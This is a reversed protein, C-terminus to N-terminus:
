QQMQIQDEYEIRMSGSFSVVGTIPTEELFIAWIAGKTITQIPTAPASSNNYFTLLGRQSVDRDLLVMKSTGGMAIAYPPPGANVSFGDMNWFEDVLVKFRGRNDMNFASTSRITGSADTFVDTLNPATGNTQEDQVVVLRLIEGPSSSNASPRLCGAIYLHTLHVVNGIRSTETFGEVIPNLLTMPGTVAGVVGNVIPFSGYGLDLYKKVGRFANESVARTDKLSQGLM